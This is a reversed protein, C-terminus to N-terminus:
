LATTIQGRNPIIPSQIQLRNYYPRGAIDDYKPHSVAYVIPNFCSAVKALMSPLQAVVPTIARRPGFQALMVTAAYPSWALLWLCVATLAVKALRIEAREQPSICTTLFQVILIDFPRLLLRLM